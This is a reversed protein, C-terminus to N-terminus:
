IRYTGETVTYKIETDSLEQITKKLYESFEIETMNSFDKAFLKITNATSLIYDNGSTTEVSINISNLTLDLENIYEAGYDCTPCGRYYSDYSDIHLVGGDKLRIIYDKKEM